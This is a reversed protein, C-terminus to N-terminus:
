RNGEGCRCCTRREVDRSLGASGSRGVLEERKVWSGRSSRRRSYSFRRETLFLIFVAGSKEGSRSDEIEGFGTQNRTLVNAAMEVADMGSYHKGAGDRIQEGSAIQVLLIIWNEGNEDMWEELRDLQGASVGLNGKVYVHQGAEWSEVIDTAHRLVVAQDSATTRACFAVWIALCVIYRPM